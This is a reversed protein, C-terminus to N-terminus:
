RIIYLLHNHVKIVLSTKTFVIGQRMNNNLSLEM